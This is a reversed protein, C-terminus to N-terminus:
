SESRRTIVTNAKKSALTQAASSHHVVARRKSRRVLNAFLPRLFANFPNAPGLVCFAEIRHALPKRDIRSVIANRLPFFYQLTPQLPESPVNIRHRAVDNPAFLALQATRAPVYTRNPRLLRRYLGPQRIRLLVARFEHNLRARIFHTDLASHRAAHFCP